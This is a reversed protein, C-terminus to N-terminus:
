EASRSRAGSILEEAEEVVESGQGMSSQVLHKRTTTTRAMLRSGLSNARTLPSSVTHDTIPPFVNIIRPKHAIVIVESRRRRRRWMQLPSSM